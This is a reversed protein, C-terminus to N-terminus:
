RDDKLLGKRRAENKAKSITGKAHNLLEALERQPIGQNLLDAVREVLSDEVDKMTWVQAQNPNTTLQVEFPRVDKGYIMRAKEFHIEFRAGEEPEYDGPHKLHLVTDLVDERRSTGRQRGDKGDHHM